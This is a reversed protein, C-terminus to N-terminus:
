WSGGAGGGGFSGGGFGGSFGGGGFGGGGFGGSSHHNGRGNGRLLSGLLILNIIDSGTAKGTAINNISGAGSRLLVSLIVVAFIFLGLFIISVVFGGGEEGEAEKYTIEGALIPMLREVAAHVGGYYDNNKFRPIMVQEVIRKAIADPVVAELGYGVAIFVEGRASESKPKVLIVVGNDFKESGVGWKEGIGYAFQAADMGGLDDVTVIVIRNSTTDAFDVLESELGARQSSTFLSAYDNVAYPVAPKEPIQASIDASFALILVLGSLISVLRYKM